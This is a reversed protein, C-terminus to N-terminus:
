VLQYFYFNIKKERNKKIYDASISLFISIMWQQENNMIMIM